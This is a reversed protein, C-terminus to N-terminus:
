KSIGSTIVVAVWLVCVVDADVPPYYDLREAQHLIAPQGFYDAGCRLPVEHDEMKMVNACNICSTSMHHNKFINESQGKCFPIIVALASGIAHISSAFIQMLNTSLTAAM